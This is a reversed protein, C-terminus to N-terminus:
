AMSFVGCVVAEALMEPFWSSTARRLLSLGLSLFIHQIRQMAGGGFQATL